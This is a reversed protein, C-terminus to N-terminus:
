CRVEVYVTEDWREPMDPVPELLRSTGAATMEAGLFGGAELVLALTEADYASVHAHEQFVERLALMPTARGWRMERLGDPDYAYRRAYMGADPVGVRLVGGARLVKKVHGLVVLTESYTMHEFVHELFVADVSGDEFPLPRRLDWVLDTKGGVLDVNIWGDLMNWGCGLHLKVSSRGEVLRRASRRTRSAQANTAAQKARLRAAPSLVRRLQDAGPLTSQGYASEYKAIYWHLLGIPTDSAPADQDKM